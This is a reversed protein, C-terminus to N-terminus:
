FFLAIAWFSAVVMVLTSGGAGVARLPGEISDAKLGLAHCARFVVLGGALLHVALSPAGNIELLAILLLSLPVFEIFNSHRRMALLLEPNEGHGISIKTQGRIRGAQFAIAICMIGLIGAYLATIPVSM